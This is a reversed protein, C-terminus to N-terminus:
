TNFEPRWGDSKAVLKILRSLAVARDEGTQLVINTVLYHDDGANVVQHAIELLDQEEVSLGEANMTHLMAHM